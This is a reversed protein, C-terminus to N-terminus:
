VFTLLTQLKQKLDPINFRFPVLCDIQVYLDLDERDLDFLYTRNSIFNFEIRCNDIRFEIYEYEVYLNPNDTVYRYVLFDIPCDSHQLFTDGEREDFENNSDQLPVQCLPCVLEPTIIKILDPNFQLYKSNITM